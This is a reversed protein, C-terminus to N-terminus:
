FSQTYRVYTVKGNADYLSQSYGRGDDELPDLSPDEDTVNDIGVTLKGNWPTNWNAQVDYTTRM